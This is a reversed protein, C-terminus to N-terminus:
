NFSNFRVPATVGIDTLVPLAMTSPIQYSDVAASVKAMPVGAVARMSMTTNRFVNAACVTLSATRVPVGPAM